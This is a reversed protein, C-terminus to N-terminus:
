QVAAASQINVPVPDFSADLAANVPVRLDNPAGEPRSFRFQLQDPTMRTIYAQAYKPSSKSAYDKLWRDVTEESVLATKNYAKGYMM